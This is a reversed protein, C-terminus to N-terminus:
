PRDKRFEGNIFYFNTNDHLVKASVIGLKNLLTALEEFSKAQCLFNDTKTEYLYMIDNYIELKYDTFNEVTTNPKDSNNKIKLLAEITNNLSILAHQYGKKFGLFYGIIFVIYYSLVTFIIELM